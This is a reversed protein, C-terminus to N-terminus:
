WSTGSRFFTVFVILALTIIAIVIAKKHEKSM